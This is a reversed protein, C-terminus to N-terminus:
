KKEEKIKTLELVDFILNEYIKDIFEKAESKTM